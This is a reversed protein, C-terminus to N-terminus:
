AAIKTIAERRDEYIPILTTLRTMEFVARVNKCVNVLGLRGGDRDVVGRLALLMGLASSSVSKVKAMDLLVRPQDVPELYLYISDGLHEVEYADLVDSKNFKLVHVGDEERSAFLGHNM